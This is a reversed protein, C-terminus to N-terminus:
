AAPWEIEKLLKRFIAEPYAAYDNAEIVFHGNGGVVRNEFYQKLYFVDDVIVLGNITIGAAITRDRAPEPPAGNNNTGDSSIDIVSRLGKYPSNLVLFTSADIATSLSTSGDRVGRPTRRLETAFQRSARAGDIIRWPLTVQTVGVSSWQILSVAIRGNPGSGIASIIEPHQMADALGHMQLAYERDDVSYSCDVALVLTLDVDSSATGHTTTSAALLMALGAVAWLRSQLPVRM